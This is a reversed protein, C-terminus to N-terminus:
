PKGSKLVTDIDSSAWLFGAAIALLADGLAHPNQADPPTLIGVVTLVAMMRAFYFAVIATV